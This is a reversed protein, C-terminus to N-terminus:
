LPPVKLAGAAAKERKEVEAAVADALEKEKAAKAAAARAELVEPKVLGLKGAEEFNKEDSCFDVFEAPDNHFRARVDAPMLDFAERAAVVANMADRFDGLGTFDGYSPMRVNTPLEGTLGFRRVITNIDCEEAFSQKTLSVDKCELGTEMSVADADYNFPFGCRVLVRERAVVGFHSKAIEKERNNM